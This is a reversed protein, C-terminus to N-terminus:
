SAGRLTMPNFRKLFREVLGAAIRHEYLQGTPTLGRIRGDTFFRALLDCGAEIRNAPNPAAADAPIPPPVALGHDRLHKM